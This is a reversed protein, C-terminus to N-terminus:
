TSERNLPGKQGKCFLRFGNVMERNDCGGMCNGFIVNAKLHSKYSNIETIDIILPVNKM